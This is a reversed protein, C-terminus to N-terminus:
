NQGAERALAINKELLQTIEGKAKMDALIDNVKDVLANSGKPFVIAQGTKDEPVVITINAITLEPYSYMYNQATLWGVLAADITGEIVEMIVEPLKGLAVKRCNPVYEDLIKEQTSGTQVGIDKGYLSSISTLQDAKDKRVLVVFPLVHYSNSFAVIKKRAETPNFGAVAMDFEHNRIAPVIGKFQMDTINLRVGLHEAIRKAIDIDFGVIEDKGDRVIHFEKPPNDAATAVRLVGSKLVRQLSDDLALAPWAFFSGCLVLVSALTLWAFLKRM